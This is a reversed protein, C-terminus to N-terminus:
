DERPRTFRHGSKRPRVLSSKQHSLDYQSNTSAFSFPLVQQMRDVASLSGAATSRDSEVENGEGVRKARSAAPTALDKSLRVTSQSRGAVAEVRKRRAQGREELNPKLM